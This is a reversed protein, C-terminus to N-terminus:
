KASLRTEPIWGKVGAEGRVSYIWTANQFEADLVTLTSGGRVTPGPRTGEVDASLTVSGSPSSSEPRITVRQGETFVPTPVSASSLPPTVPLTPSLPEPARLPSPESDPQPQAAPPPVPAPASPPGQGILELVLSPDSALYTGGGVMLLLLLLLWPRLHPPKPSPDPSGLVVPEHSEDLDNEFDPDPERAFSLDWTSVPRAAMAGASQGRM